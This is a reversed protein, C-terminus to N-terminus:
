QDAGGVQHGCRLMQAGYYPNAVKSGEQVWGAGAMPCYMVNKGAPKAASVWTSVPKSLDRFAERTSEIDTATKMKACAAILSQPIERYDESHAEPARKPDLQKAGKAIAEVASQIGDTSDAALVQQIKLYEALIPKMASDFESAGASGYSALIAVSLISVAVRVRRTM